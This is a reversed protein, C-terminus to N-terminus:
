SASMLLDENRKQESEEVLKLDTIELPNISKDWKPFQRQFDEPVARHNKMFKVNEKKKM